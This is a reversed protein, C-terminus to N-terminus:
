EFWIFAELMTLVSRFGFLIGTFIRWVVWIVTENVVLFYAGVGSIGLKIFSSM